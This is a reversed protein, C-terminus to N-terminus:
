QSSVPRQLSPLALARRLFGEVDAIDSTREMDQPAASFVSLDRAFGIIPKAYWHALKIESATGEGGPLAIVADSSLINIHNRCLTDTGRGARLPLHTRIVIEVYANPYGQPAAAPEELSHAPLVGVIKGQRGPTQAASRAVAEMVGGGGGTLIDVGLGALLRGVPGAEEEHPLTGSGMVGVMPRRRVAGADNDM